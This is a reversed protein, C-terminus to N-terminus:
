AAPRSPPNAAKRAPVEGKMNRATLYIYHFGSLLTTLLTAWYCAPLVFDSPARLTNFMLVALVTVVQVATNVKSLRTPPFRRQEAVLNLVLAILVILVDRSITLITLRVPIRNILIFEPFLSPSDPMTLTIFAATLLLKDAMPDLFAGLDTKQGYLRAILGDLADTLGAILFIALAWAMRGTLMVLIFFPIFMMRLVTLQNAFNM